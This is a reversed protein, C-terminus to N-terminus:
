LVGLKYPSDERLRQCTACSCELDTQLTGRCQNGGPCVELPFSPCNQLLAPKAFTGENRNKPDLPCGFTGENRDKTGPFM